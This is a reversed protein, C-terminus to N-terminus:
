AEGTIHLFRGHLKKTTTDVTAGKEDWSPVQLVQQQGRTVPSAHAFHLAAALVLIYIRM